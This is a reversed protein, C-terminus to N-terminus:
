PVDMKNNFFSNEARNAYNKKIEERGKEGFIKIYHLLHVLSGDKNRM